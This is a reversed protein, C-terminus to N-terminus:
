VHSGTVRRWLVSRWALDTSSYKYGIEGAAAHHWGALNHVDDGHDEEAAVAVAVDLQLKDDPIYFMYQFPDNRPGTAIRSDDLLSGISAPSSFPRQESTQDPQRM